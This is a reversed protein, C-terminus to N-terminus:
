APISREEDAASRSAISDRHNEQVNIKQDGCMAHVGILVTFDLRPQFCSEAIGSSEGYRFQSQTAAQAHDRMWLNEFFRRWQSPREIKHFVKTRTFLHVKEPRARTVPFNEDIRQRRLSARPLRTGSANWAASAISSPQSHNVSSRPNARSVPRLHRCGNSQTKGTASRRQLKRSVCGGSCFSTEAPLRFPCALPTREGSSIAVM